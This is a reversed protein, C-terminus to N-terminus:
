NFKFINKPESLGGDNLWYTEEIRLSFPVDNQMYDNQKAIKGEAAFPIIPYINVELNQAGFKFIAPNLNAGFYNM